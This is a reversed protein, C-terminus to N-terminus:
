GLNSRQSSGVSSDYGRGPAESSPKLNVKRHLRASHQYDKAVKSKLVEFVKGAAEKTRIAKEKQLNAM